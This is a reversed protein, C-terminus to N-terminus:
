DADRDGKGKGEKEEEMEAHLKEAIRCARQIWSIVEEPTDVFDRMMRQHDQLLIGAKDPEELIVLSCQFVSLGKGGDIWIALNGWKGGFLDEDWEADAIVIPGPPYVKWEPPLTPTFAHM